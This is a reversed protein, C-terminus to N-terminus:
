LMIIASEGTYNCHLNALLLISPYISYVISIHVIAMMLMADCGDYTDTITHAHVFSLIIM